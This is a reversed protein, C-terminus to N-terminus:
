GGALLVDLARPLAAALPALQVYLTCLVAGGLAAIAVSALLQSNRM